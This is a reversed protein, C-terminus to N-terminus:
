GGRQLDDEGGERLRRPTLNSLLPVHVCAGFVGEDLLGDGVVRLLREVPLRDVGANVLVESCM